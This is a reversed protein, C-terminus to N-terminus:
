KKNRIWSLKLLRKWTKLTGNCSCCSSFGMVTGVVVSCCKGSDSDIHMSELHRCYRCCKQTKIKKSMNYYDTM